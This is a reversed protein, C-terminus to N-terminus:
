RALVKAKQADFEAQTLIGQEKLALLKALEDAASPVAAPSSAPPVATAATAAVRAMPPEVPRFVRELTLTLPKGDRMVEVPYTPTKAAKARLDQLDGASKFRRGGVSVVKDGAQMGARDAASGPTVDIVESQGYRGDPMFKGNFGMVAHNPFTTGEPFHGGANSMVAMMSNQFEVTDLEVRKIQGFAMQTEMWGSVQVRSIGDLESANFRVFRRPATSYSNGMLAQALISQGTGLPAECVVENSTTSTVTWRQNMCQRALVAVTEGAKAPFMMEPTGSPTVALLPDAM